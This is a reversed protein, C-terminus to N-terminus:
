NFVTHHRCRTMVQQDTMQQHITLLVTGGVSVTLTDEEALEM